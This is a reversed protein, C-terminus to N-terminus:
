KRTELDCILARYVVDNLKHDVLEVNLIRSALEAQILLLYSISDLFVFM